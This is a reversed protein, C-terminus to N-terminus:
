DNGGGVSCQLVQVKKGKKILDKKKKQQAGESGGQLSDLPRKENKTSWGKQKAKKIIAATKKL